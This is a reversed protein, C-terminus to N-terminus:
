LVRSPLAGLLTESIDVHSYKVADDRPTRGFRDFPAPRVGQSLLYKVIELHGNCAALHLPTRGDYDGVDLNCGTAEYQQLLLVNGEAAATCLKFALGDDMITAGSERLLKVVEYHKNLVAEQMPSQRWRDMFNITHRPGEYSLLVKIAEVKGEAAALHLPVRGDYDAAIGVSPEKKLIRNIEATDGKAAASCLEQIAFLSKANSTAIDAVACDADVHVRLFREGDVFTGYQKSQLSREEADACRLLVVCPSHQNRLADMEPTSDWRDMVDKKAGKELLLRVCETHGETAALHLPSRYDYDVINVNVDERELLAKLKSFDGEASHKLVAFNTAQSSSIVEAGQLKLWQVCRIHKGQVADSLATHGLRDTVNIDVHHRQHLYQLIHLHGNAAACHISTRGDYDGLECPAGKSIYSKLKDLDGAGAAERLHAALAAPGIDLLAHLEDDYAQEGIQTLDLGVEEVHISIDLGVTKKIVIVIWYTMSASLIVTIACALLQIKIQYLGGGYFYGDRGPNGDQFRKDAFFGVFISGLIGPVGQLAFVDLVDDIQLTQKVFPVTYFSALGAITGIIIASFPPMFGSGPTVGALGAFAGGIIETIHWKGDRRFALFTWVAAGACASIHTNLLALVAQGNAKNASGGILSFFLLPPPSHYSLDCM